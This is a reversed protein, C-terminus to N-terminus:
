IFDILGNEILKPLIQTIKRICLKKLLSKRLRVYTSYDIVCIQSIGNFNHGQILLFMIEKENETLDELM